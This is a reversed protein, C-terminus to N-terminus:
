AVGRSLVALLHIAKTNLRIQQARLYDMDEAIRADGLVRFRGGLHANVAATLAQIRESTVELDALCIDLEDLDLGTESLRDTVHSLTAIITNISRRLEDRSIRREHENM